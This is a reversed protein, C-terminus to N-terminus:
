SRSGKWEFVCTTHVQSASQFGATRMAKRLSNADQGKKRSVDESGISMPFLVCDYSNDDLFFGHYLFYVHSPQGYNEFVQRLNYMYIHSRTWVTLPSFHKMWNFWLGWFCFYISASGSVRSPLVPSCPVTFDLDFVQDGQEFAIPALTDAHTGRLLDLQTSHVRQSTLSPLSSSPSSSSSSSSSFTAATSTSSPTSPISDRCNILDLLPVLHRMGSWWISRSDLVYHAWRIYHTSLTCSIYFAFMHPSRARTLFHLFYVCFSVLLDLPPDTTCSFFCLLSLSLWLTFSLYVHSSLFGEELIWDEVALALAHAHRRICHIYCYRFTDEDIGNPFVDKVLNGFARPESLFAFNQKV